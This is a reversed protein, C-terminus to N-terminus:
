NQVLPYLLKINYWEGKMNKKTRVLAKTSNPSLQIIVGYKFWFFKKEDRIMVFDGEKAYLKGQKTLDHNPYTKDATYKIFCEFRLDGFLKLYPQLCDFYKVMINDELQGVTMKLQPNMIMQHRFLPM